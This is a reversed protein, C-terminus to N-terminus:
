ALFNAFAATDFYIAVSGLKGDKAKWFEAVDCAWTKGKPSALDYNVLAFGKAGETMVEKVRHGRVLKFFNNTKYAERGKSERAVTGSLLLDEALIEDWGAQGSLGEYYRSLLEKTSEATSM